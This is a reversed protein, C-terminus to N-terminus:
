YQLTETINIRTARHAPFFSAFICIVMVFGIVTVFTFPDITNVDAFLPNIQVCLFVSVALGLLLGYGILRSSGGLVRKLIKSPAAGLAMRIGYEKTREAVTFSILGYLGLGSLFLALSAFMVTVLMPLEQPFTATEYIDQFATAEVTLQPDVELIAREIASMQQLPDGQAHVVFSSQYRHMDWQTFPFYLTFRDFEMFFPKDQVQEAVGVIRLDKGYFKIYMGVPDLGEFYREMTNQSIIVVRESEWNDTDTFDRGLLLRTGVTDFYGPRTLVRLCNAQPEGEEYEYHHFAFNSHSQNDVDIPIRNSVSASVVGPMSRITEVITEQFPLVKNRYDEENWGFRYSPQPVEFALRGQRDFGVHKQLTANLNLVLVGATILLIVSLSVQSIVFVAHLRHKSVSGAMTRNGAKVFDMLNRRLISILPMLGTFLAACLAVLLTVFMSRSDITWESAWPIEDFRWFYVCGWYACKLVVLSAVGGLLFYAFIEVYIQRSIRLASAGMAKRMALEQIRSYGKVLIMGGVNLCGIILVVFTVMQISKFAVEIQGLDQMITRNIEVSGFVAGTREQDDRDQSYMEMYGEFVAALNQNAQEISVGPKLKGIANHSHNNRQDAKIEWAPFLRPIFADSHYAGLFYSQPAVGIIEYAQNDILLDEGLLNSERGGLDSWLQEGLVIVKGQTREVEAEEFFRGLVPQVGTARWIGSTIADASIRRIRGGLDLDYYNSFDIFGLESFATAHEEIFKWQPVSLRGVSSGSLKTELKGVMVLRDTDEYDYPNTVLKLVFNYATTNSGMCIALTLVIIATHMKYKAIQRLAYKVDQVLDDWMRVGWSAQCDDKLSEVNGFRKLAEKRAQEQTMGEGVLEDIMFELHQEMEAAFEDQLTDRRFLALFWNKIERFPRFSM